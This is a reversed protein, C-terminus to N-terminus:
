HSKDVHPGQGHLGGRTVASRRPWLLCSTPRSSSGRHSADGALRPRPTLRLRPLPPPGPWGAPCPLRAPGPSRGAVGPAALTTTPQSVAPGPDCAQGGLATTVLRAAVARCSSLCEVLRDRSTLPLGQVGSHKASPWPRPLMTGSSSAWALFDLGSAVPAFACLVCGHM